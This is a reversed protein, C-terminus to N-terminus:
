VLYEDLIRVVVRACMRGDQAAAPDPIFDVTMVEVRPEYDQITQGIAIAAKARGRPMPDDIFSPDIGLRRDLPITGVATTLLLTVNQVIEEITTQPFWNIEETNLGLITRVNNIM